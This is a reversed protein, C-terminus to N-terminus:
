AASEAPEGASSLRGRSGLAACLLLAADLGEDSPERSLLVASRGRQSLSRGLRLAQDTVVLVPARSGALVMLDSATPTEGCAQLVMLDPPAAAGPSGAPVVDHGLAHLRGELDECEADHCALVLLRFRRSADRRGGSPHGSGPVGAM